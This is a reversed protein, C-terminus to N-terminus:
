SKQSVDLMVNREVNLKNAIEIQRTPFLHAYHYTMQISEHGMREAIAVASFGLEILLSVHSHRLDHIRIRKLGAKKCGREMEYYLYNKSIPFIRDTDSLGYLSDFYSQLEEALFPPIQIVRRSKRTKPDTIYDKGQLRQYSKNIRLTHKQFDFDCKTLALLEGERIGCWYLVEFAYYSIPKDAVEDLFKLFEEKTWFSMESENAIGMSKVKKAPNSKLDYMNVAYNLIASLQNNITKLYSQSFPKGEKDRYNMLENQWKLIDSTKIENLPLHRFYPLIKIDIIAKKTLWTNYKLRSKCNDMYIEVFQGFSMGLDLDTQLKFDREWNRAETKNRFGRKTKQKLKGHIDKYYCRVEWTKSKKNELIAM